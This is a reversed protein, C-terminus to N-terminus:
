ESRALGRGFAALRRTLCDEPADGGYRAARLMTSFAEGDPDSVRALFVDILTRHQHEAISAVELGVFFAGQDEHELGSQFVPHEADWRRDDDGDLAQDLILALDGLDKTREHPRDLWAVIKLVVLVALTALEVDVGDVPLHVRTTHRLALDFGVLSMRIDDGDFRIEGAAILEDTAPLLDALVDEPGHWRQRMRASRRWGLPGLVGDLDAPALVIALDIDATTRSLPVYHGLAAAGIMVLRTEPIGVRLAALARAQAPTIALTV